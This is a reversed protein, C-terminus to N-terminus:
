FIKILSAVIDDPAIHQKVLDPAIVGLNSSMGQLGM